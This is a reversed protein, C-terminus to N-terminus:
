AAREPVEQTSAYSWRETSDSGGGSGPRKLSTTLEHGADSGLSAAGVSLVGRTLWREQQGPGGKKSPGPTADANTM